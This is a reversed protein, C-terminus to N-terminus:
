RLTLTSDAKLPPVETEYDFAPLLADFDTLEDGHPLSKGM